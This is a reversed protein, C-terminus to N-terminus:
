FTGEGELEVELGYVDFSITVTPSGDMKSEIKFWNILSVEEGNIEFAFGRPTSIIRVENETMSAPLGIDYIGDQSATPAIKYVNTREVKEGGESIELEAIDEDGICSIKYEKVYKEQKGNVLIRNKRRNYGDVIRCRM